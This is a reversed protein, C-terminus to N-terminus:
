CGTPATPPPSPASSGRSPGRSRSRWSCTSGRSSRRSRTTSTCGTRRRSTSRRSTPTPSCRRTRATPARSGGSPRTRTPARRRAAPSRSSRARRRSRCRRSSSGTSTPPRSFGWRVPEVAVIRHGRAYLGRRWAGGAPRWGHRSRTARRGRTRSREADLGDGDRRGVVGSRQVRARRVRGDLDRRVEVCRLDDAGRVLRVGVRNMRAVAEERLAGLEGLRHEARPQRPDPRRGAASRAPPSLSAAFSVARAAPTGTSGLPVGSSTPKGSSTLAAAPPPPRPM